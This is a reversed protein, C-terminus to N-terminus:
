HCGRASKSMEKTFMIFKSNVSFYATMAHIKHVSQADSDRRWSKYIRNYFPFSVGHYSLMSTLAKEPQEYELHSNACFHDYIFMLGWHFTAISVSHALIVAM